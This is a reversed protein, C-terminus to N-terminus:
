IPESRLCRRAAVAARRCVMATFASSARAALQGRGLEVPVSTFPAVLCSLFSFSSGARGPSQQGKPSVSFRRLSVSGGNKKTEKTHPATLRPLAPYPPAAWPVRPVAGPYVKLPYLWLWVCVCGAWLERWQGPTPSATTLVFIFWLGFDSHSFFKKEFSLVATYLIMLVRTAKDQRKRVRSSSSSLATHPAACM